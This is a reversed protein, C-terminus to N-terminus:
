PSPPGLEKWFTAVPKDNIERLTPVSHLWHADRQPDYTLHVSELPLGSIASVDSVPTRDFVLWKLPMGRLPSLDSVRTSAIQLKILQMGRLPTIDSLPNSWVQLHELPLGRLPSLDSVRNGGVHLTRLPMNHLPTLDEIRNWGCDLTRLPLGELPSLDILKGEGPKSGGAVLWHLDRLAQLPTLDVVNDTFLQLRTLVKGDFATELRGDFGPNRRILEQSVLPIRAPSDLGALQRAWSPDLPPFKAAGTDPIFRHDGQASIELRKGEPVEIEKWSGNALRVLVIVGGLILPLALALGVLGTRTAIWSRRSAELAKPAPRTPPPEVIETAIAGLQEAVAQATAPRNHPEKELLQEILKALGEPIAPNQERVPIPTAVALASLIALSSSGDFPVQGTAMEYLVCGLSFLDARADVKEGRAQEPAMYALTGVIVGSGTHRDLERHNLTLGFDLIKVHPKSSKRAVLFINAPKIDRHILGQEHAAGLGHAIQLAIDAIEQPAFALGSRLREELSQGRLLEMDLYSVDGEHGFHFISIISEHQLAAASSAERLFRDRFSLDGARRPHVVKLAVQRKLRTDEARFVMGMGGHGLVDLVRYHALRGLDGPELPPALFPCDHLQLEGAVASRRSATSTEADRPVAMTNRGVAAAGPRTAAGISSAEGLQRLRISIPDPRAEFQRLHEECSPCAEAHEAVEEALQESLQGRLFSQLCGPTPCSKALM